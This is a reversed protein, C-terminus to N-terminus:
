IDCYLSPNAFCAKAIALGKQDKSTTSQRYLPLSLTISIPGSNFLVSDNCTSELTRIYVQTDKQFPNLFIMVLLIADEFNSDFFAYCHAQNIQAVFNFSWIHHDISVALSM